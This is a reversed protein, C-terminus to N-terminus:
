CCCFESNVDAARILMIVTYAASHAGSTLSLTLNHTTRVQRLDEEEECSEPEGATFKAPQHLSCGSQLLLEM